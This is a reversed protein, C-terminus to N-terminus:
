SRMGHWSLFTQVGTPDQQDNRAENPACRKEEDGFAQAGNIRIAHREKADANAKECKCQKWRGAFWDVVGIPALDDPEADKPESERQAHKRKRFLADGRCEGAHQIAGIWQRWM